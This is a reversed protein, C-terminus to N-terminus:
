SQRLELSMFMVEFPLHPFTRIGTERFGLKEYWTKLKEHKAIIAITVTDLDQQRAQDLVYQVLLRGLGKRRSEPVVALRELSCASPAACNMVVCGAPQGDLALLFYAVGRQMDGTIWSDECNSPHRPCNEATLGFEDAVDRFSRRIVTCLVPIDEQTAQTIRIMDTMTTRRSASSYVWDEPKAVFGRRVPNEHIYRLKQRFAQASADVPHYDPEWVDLSEPGTRLRKLAWEKQELVLIEQLTRATYSRMSALTRRLADASGISSLVHMHDPMIVYGYIRLGRNERCWNLSACVAEFLDPRMFLSFHDHLVHTTFCAVGDWIQRRPM